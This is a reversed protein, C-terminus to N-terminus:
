HRASIRRGLGALMSVGLLLLPASAPLPVVQPAVDISLTYAFNADAGTGTLVGNGGNDLDGADGFGSVAVVYNGGSLFSFANIRSGFDVGSNDDFALVAGASNYLYLLTDRTSSLASSTVLVDFRYVSGALASFQFYDASANVTSGFGPADTRAGTIRYGTQGTVLPALVQAASLTDNPEIEVLDLTAALGSASAVLTAAAFLSTAILRTM